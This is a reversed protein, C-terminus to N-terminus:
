LHRADRLHRAVMRDVSRPALFVGRMGIGLLAAPPENEVPEVPRLGRGRIPQLKGTPLAYAAAELMRALPRHSAKM